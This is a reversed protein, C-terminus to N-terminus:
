TPSVMHKSSQHMVTASALRVGPAVPWDHFTVNRMELRAFRM